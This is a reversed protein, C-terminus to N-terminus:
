GQLKKGMQIGIPDYGYRKLVKSYDKSTNINMVLLNIGVERLDDEIFKSFKKFYKGRYEPKIYFSDSSAILIDDFHTHYDVVFLAYGILAGHFRMSVTYFYGGQVLQQYRDIWPNHVADPFGPLGIEKAHEIYLSKAEELFTELNLERQFSLEDM